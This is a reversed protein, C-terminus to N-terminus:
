PGHTKHPNPSKMAGPPTHGAPNTPAPSPTGSGSPAGSSSPTGSGSPSSSSSPRGSSTPSGSSSGARGAVPAPAAAPSPTIGNRAGDLSSGHSGSRAHGGTPVQSAAGSAQSLPAAWNTFPAQPGGAMAVVVAGLCLALAGASGLGVSRLLRQRRGSPDAFVPHTVAFITAICCGPSSHFRLAAWSGPAPRPLWVYGHDLDAVSTRFLQM